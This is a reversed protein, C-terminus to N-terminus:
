NPKTGNQDQIIKGLIAYLQHVCLMDMRLRSSIVLDPDISEGRPTFQATGLTVNVVGNLFGSGVVQNVFTTRVKHPDTVPLPDAVPIAKAPNDSM